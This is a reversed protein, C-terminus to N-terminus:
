VPFSVAIVDSELPPSTFVIQTTSASYAVGQIELLGNRFVQIFDTNRAVAPLAFVSNVGDQVQGTLVASFVEGAAAGRPGAPGRVEVVTFDGSVVSLDVQPDDAVLFDIRDDIVVDFILEAMTVSLLELRWRLKWGM